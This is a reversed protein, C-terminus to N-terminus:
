DGLIEHLHEQVQKWLLEAMVNAEKELPMKEYVEQIRHKPVNAYIVDQLIPRWLSKRDFDDAFEFFHFAHGAEHLYVRLHSYDGVNESESEYINMNIRAVDEETQEFFCCQEKTDFTLTIAPIIDEKILLKHLRLVENVKTKYQAKTFFIM